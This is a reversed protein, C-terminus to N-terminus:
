ANYFIIYWPIISNETDISTSYEIDIYKAYEVKTYRDNLSFSYVPETDNTKRIYDIILHPM